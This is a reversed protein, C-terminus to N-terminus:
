ASLTLPKCIESMLVRQPPEGITWEAREERTSGDSKWDATHARSFLHDDTNLNDIQLLNHDVYQVSVETKM